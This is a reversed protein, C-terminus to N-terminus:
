SADTPRTRPWSPRVARGAVGVVACPARDPRCALAWPSQRSLSRALFFNHRPQASPRRGRGRGPGSSMGPRGPGSSLGRGRGPGSSFGGRGPGSSFGGRGPGSSFGGRAKAPAGGGGGGGGGSGLGLDALLDDVESEASLAPGKPVAQYGGGAQQPQTPVNGDACCHHVVAFPIYFARRRHFTCHSPSRSDTLGAAM